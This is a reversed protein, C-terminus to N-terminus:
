QAPIRAFHPRGAGFLILLFDLIRQTSTAGARCPRHAKIPLRRMLSSAALPLRTGAGVPPERDAVHWRELLGLHALWTCGRVRFVFTIDSRQIGKLIELIHRRAAGTRRLRLFCDNERLAVVRVRDEVNSGSLDFDGDYGRLALLGNDGDQPPVLKEALSAQNTLLLAQRGGAGHRFTYRHPHL